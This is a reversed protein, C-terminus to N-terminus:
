FFLHLLRGDLLLDRRGIQLGHRGKHGLHDLLEVDEVHAESGGDDAGRAAALGGAPAHKLYAWLRLYQDTQLFM